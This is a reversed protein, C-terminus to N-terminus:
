VAAVPHLLANRHHQDVLRLRHGVGLVLPQHGLGGGLTQPGRELCSRARHRARMVAAGAPTTSVRWWNLTAAPSGSCTAVARSASSPPMAPRGSGASMSLTTTSPIPALPM